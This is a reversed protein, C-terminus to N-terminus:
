LFFSLFSGAFVFKGAYHLGSGAFMATPKGETKGNKYWSRCGSTWVMRKLFEQTYVNYDYVASPKPVM